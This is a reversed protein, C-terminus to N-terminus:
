NLCTLLLYWIQSMSLLFGMTFAPTDNEMRGLCDRAKHRRSHGRDRVPSMQLHPDAHTLCVASGRMEMRVAQCLHVKHWGLPWDAAAPFKVVSSKCPGIGGWSHWGPPPLPPASHLVWCKWMCSWARQKCLFILFVMWLNHAKVSFHKWQRAKARPHRPFNVGSEHPFCGTTASGSWFKLAAPSSQLTEPIHFICSGSPCLEKPFFWCRRQMVM